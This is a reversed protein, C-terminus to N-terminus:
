VCKETPDSVCEEAKMQLLPLQSYYFSIFLFLLM